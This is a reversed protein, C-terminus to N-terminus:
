VSESWLLEMWLTLPYANRSEYQGINLVGDEFWIDYIGWVPDEAGKAVPMVCAYQVKFDKLPQILEKFTLLNQVTM